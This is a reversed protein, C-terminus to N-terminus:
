PPTATHGSVSLRYSLYAILLAMLAIIIPYIKLRVDLRRHAEAKTAAAVSSRHAALYQLGIATPYTVRGDDRGVANICHLDVLFRIGRDIDVSELSRAAMVEGLVYADTRCKMVDPTREWEAALAELVWLAIQDTPTAMLDLSFLQAM